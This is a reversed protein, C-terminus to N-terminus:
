QGRAAKTTRLTANQSFDSTRVLTAKSYCVSIRPPSNRRMHSFLVDRFKAQQELSSYLLAPHPCFLPVNARRRRFPHASHLILAVKEAFFISLRYM